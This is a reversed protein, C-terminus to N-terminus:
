WQTLCSKMAAREQRTLWWWMPQSRGEARGICVPCWRRLAGPMFNLMTLGNIEANRKANRVAAPVIEVGIVKGAKQALFLSITGIGCYLDWVIEGGTLGAYELATDYLKKTQLPNVQYFSLPSIEYKIDGIYDTISDKGYITILKDGMIVNTSKRNVNLSISVISKDNEFELKILEDIIRRRVDKGLDDRNIVLCVMIEGTVAGVRTIIHRLVGRGSKEDYPELEDGCEDILGRMVRIIQANARDQIMCDDMDIISHSHGAYFGIKVKGNRDRGVPFQAKNRYHWPNEMGIIPEMLDAANEVQGIRRLCNIVKNEKFRLQYEYDAHQIQCGGCQRAVPCQPKVRFESPRIIELLRAYGYTKKMKMIKARIEDGPLVDKVFLTLGDYRAVGEGESGMDEIILTIEDDKKLMMVEV